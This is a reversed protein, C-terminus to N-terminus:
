SSYTLAKEPSDSIIGLVLENETFQRINKEDNVTWLITKLASERIMKEHKFFITYHPLLLDPKLSGVRKEVDKETENDFLLGTSVNSFEAKVAKIASDYFSTVIFQDPNYLKLIERVAKIAIGPEKIEADLMIRNQCLELTEQLTSTKYSISDLSSLTSESLRIGEACADHHIILEGDSTSRIDFEIFDAGDTIAQEFSELTNEKKKLPSGRHGGILFKKSNILGM